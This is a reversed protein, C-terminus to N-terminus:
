PSARELERVRRELKEVEERLAHLEDEAAHAPLPRQTSLGRVREGLNPAPARMIRETSRLQKFGLIEAVDQASAGRQAMTWAYSERIRTPSVEDAAFGAAEAARDVAARVDGDSIPNGESGRAYTCLLWESDPAAALWERLATCVEDRLPVNQGRARTPIHIAGQRDLDRVHERRARVIEGSTLGSNALQLAARARLGSRSGTDIAGIIQEIEQWTLMESM